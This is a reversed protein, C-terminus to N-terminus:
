RCFADAHHLLEDQAGQVRPVGRGGTDCLCVVLKGIRLWWGGAMLEDVLGTVALCLWTLCVTSRNKKNADSSPAATDTLEQLWSPVPRQRSCTVTELTDLDAHADDNDYADLRCALLHTAPAYLSLAGSYLVLAHM